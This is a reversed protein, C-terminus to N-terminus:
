KKLLISFTVSVLRIVLLLLLLGGRLVIRLRRSWGVMSVFLVFGFNWNSRLCIEYSIASEVNSDAFDGDAVEGGVMSKPTVVGGDMWGDM